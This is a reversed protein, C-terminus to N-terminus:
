KNKVPPYSSQLTTNAEATSCCSGAILICIDGGEQIKRSGWGRGVVELNDCPVPSPQVGTNRILKGSAIQKVHPLAHTGISSEWNM